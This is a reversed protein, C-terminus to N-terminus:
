RTLQGSGADAVLVDVAQHVRQGLQVVGGEQAGFEGQAGGDDFLDAEMFRVDESEQAVPWSELGEFQIQFLARVLTRKSVLNM